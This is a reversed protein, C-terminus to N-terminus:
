SFNASWYLRKERLQRSINLGENSIRLRELVKREKISMAMFKEKRLM